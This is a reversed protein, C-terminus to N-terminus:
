ELKDFPYRSQFNEQKVYEVFQELDNRLEDLTKNKWKRSDYRKTFHFVLFDIDLNRFKQVLTKYKEQEMSLFTIFITTEIIHRKRDNIELLLSFGNITGEMIEETFSWKSDKNLLFKKFGLRDLQNFPPKSFVRQRAYRKIEWALYALFIIFLPFLVGAFLVIWLILMTEPLTKGSIYAITLLVLVFGLLTISIVFFAFGLKRKNLRFFMNM